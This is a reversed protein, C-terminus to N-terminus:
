PGFDLAALDNGALGDLSGDFYMSFSACSTTPGTVPGNCAFVDEKGGNLGAVTFSGVTSLYITGDTGIAFADIDENSLTLGVDDGDFHVTLSACSSPPGTVVGSCVLVDRDEGSLGPVSYNGATSLYLNTGDFSLADVNEAYTSLGIDAGRLFLSFTGTTVDGTSAPTFRVIDAPNVAGVGPVTANAVFSLLIAGDALIDVADIAAAALGVDSGDFYLTYTGAVFRVIDEDAVAVGGLTTASKVSLYLGATPPPPADQTLTATVTAPGSPMTYTTAAALPAALSGATASWSQFTWGAAATASLSISAGAVYLGDGSCEASQLPDRSVSAQGVVTLGLTYCQPGTGGGGCDALLAAVADDLDLRHKTVNNRTDLLAPGASTLACERQASTSAPSAGALVAVAGAVHPTAQSTGSMSIGAATIVSGPALVSLYAASQSFCGIIDPATTANTCTAWAKRGMDSDYVAGVSVAGPTCAPSSLGPQFAQTKFQMGLFNIYYGANGAAVVPLVGATRLNAFASAAWSAPCQSTYHAGDGLSLNVAVINYAAKNAVVWNLAALIDTSSASTGNFVDLGILKTAPAVGLAIGAVNTGHGNDDLAGDNPAFDQAYAVRCSAAPTAPASCSGFAARTYDLGTDLIAVATGDGTYGAAAAEPQDILPLSEALAVTYRANERVSVGPALLAGLLAQGSTFRVYRAGFRSYDQLTFVGAGAGRLSTQKLQAYAQELLAGVADDDTTTGRAERWRGAASRVNTDDFIVLADASGRAKITDLVGLDLRGAAVFQQLPGSPDQANTSAAPLLAAGVVMVLGLVLAQFRTLKLM